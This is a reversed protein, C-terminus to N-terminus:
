VTKAMGPPAPNRGDVTGLDDKVWSEAVFMNKKVAQPIVSSFPRFRCPVHWPIDLLVGALHLLHCASSGDCCLFDCCYTIVRSRFETSRDIYMWKSNLICWNIKSFWWSKGAPFNGKTAFIWDFFGPSSISLVLPSFRRGSNWKKIVKCQPTESPHHSVHHSVHKVLFQVFSNISLIRSVLQYNPLQVGM